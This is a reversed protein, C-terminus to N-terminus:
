NIQIKFSDPRTRCHVPIQTKSLAEGRLNGWKTVQSGLQALKNQECKLVTPSLGVISHFPIYTLNRRLGKLDTYKFVRWIVPVFKFM